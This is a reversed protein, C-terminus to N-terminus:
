RTTAAGKRSRIETASHPDLKVPLFTWAPPKMSPLHRAPLPVRARAFRKAALEALGNFSYTPRDIVAIPLRDFISPWRQWHRIQALNDAGMLWVFRQRPFCRQLATVTDATFRTGLRTELDLVRIRPHDAFAKAQAFREAFPAMGAVPKLPNQPSVLWWV